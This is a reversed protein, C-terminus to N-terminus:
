LLVLSYLWYLAFPTFAVICALKLNKNYIGSLTCKLYNVTLVQCFHLPSFYYGVFSWTFIFSTMITKKIISMKIGELIPLLISFPVFMMGTTLGLMLSITCVVFLVTVGSSQVFLDNFTRMVFDMSQVLNSFLYVIMLTLVMQVNIGKFFLKFFDKKTSLTFTLLICLSISAYLPFSFVSNFIIIMYIPSFYIIIDKIANKIKLKEAKLTISVPKLPRIFLLYASVQMIIVFGLNFLILNYINLLPLIASLFLMTDTYPLLFMAIHRFSLNIVAKSCCDAELENGIQDVFPISMVAGGPVLIIGFVAPIIMMIIKPNHILVQLGRIGQEIIKYHKLLNGLISVLMIILFTELNTKNGYVEKICKLVSYVSIGSIICLIIVIILFVQWLSLKSKLLFPILLFSIIIAIFQQM